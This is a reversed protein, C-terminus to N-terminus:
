FSLWVFTLSAGTGSVDHLGTHFICWFNSLAWFLILQQWLRKSVQDTVDLSSCLSLTNPFLTTLLINPGLLSPAVPSHLFNHLSSSWIKRVDGCIMLCIFDLITLHSHCTAHPVCPLPSIITCLEPPFARLFSVVRFLYSSPILISRLPM